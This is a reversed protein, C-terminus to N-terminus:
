GVRKKGNKELFINQYNQKIKMKLMKEWCLKRNSFSLKPM